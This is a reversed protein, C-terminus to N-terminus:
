RGPSPYPKISVDSNLNYIGGGNVGGFANGKEITFGDIITASSVDKFTVVHYVNDDMDGVVGRDGSLVTKNLYPDRQSRTSEGGIFGGYIQVEFDVFYTRERNPTLDGTPTYLPVYDVGSGKAVWIESSCLVRAEDLADHLSTYADTWSDGLNAGSAAYNVYLIFNNQTNQTIPVTSTVWNSTNGILAFDTLTGDYGNGTKDLATTLGTNDDDAIGQNFDLYVALGPELGCLESNMTSQIELETRVSSWLRVEEIKGIWQSQASNQSNWHGVGITPNMQLVRSHTDKLIGDVYIKFTNSERTISVFHWNGDVINVGTNIWHGIGDDEYIQLQGNRDGVEFRSGAGFWTFLRALNAPHTNNDSIFWAELTFDETGTIPTPFTLRDSGSTFDLCNQTQSFAINTFIFSILFSFYWQKKM